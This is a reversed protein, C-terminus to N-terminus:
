IDTFSVVDDFTESDVNKADHIEAVTVNNRQM